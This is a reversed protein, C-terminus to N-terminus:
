SEASLVNLASLVWQLCREVAFDKQDWKKEAERCKSLERGAHLMPKWTEGYTLDISAKEM